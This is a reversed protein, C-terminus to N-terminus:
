TGRERKTFDPPMDGGDECAIVHSWYDAEEIYQGCNPCRTRMPDPTFCSTGGAVAGLQDETLQQEDATFLSDLDENTKAERLRTKQKDSLLNVLDDYKM